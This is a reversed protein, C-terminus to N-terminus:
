LMKKIYINKNKYIDSKSLMITFFIFFKYIYISLDQTLQHHIYKKCSLITQCSKFSGQLTFCVCFLQNTVYRDDISSVKPWSICLFTKNGGQM